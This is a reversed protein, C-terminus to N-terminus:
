QNQFKIKDHTKLIFGKEGVDDFVLNSNDKFLDKDIKIKDRFLNFKLSLAVNNSNM